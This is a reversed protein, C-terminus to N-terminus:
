SAEINATIRNDKWFSVKEMLAEPKSAKRVKENGQANTLFPYLPLM